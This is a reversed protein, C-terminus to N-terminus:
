FLGLVHLNFPINDMKMWDIVVIYIQRACYSVTSFVFPLMSGTQSLSIVLVFVSVVPLNLSHLYQM